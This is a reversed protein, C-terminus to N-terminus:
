QGFLAYKLVFVVIAYKFTIEARVCACIGNTKEHTFNRAGTIFSISKALICRLLEVFFRCYRTSKKSLKQIGRDFRVNQVLVTRSKHKRYLVRTPSITPFNFSKAHLVFSVWYDARFRRATSIIAPKRRFHGGQIHLGAVNDTNLSM